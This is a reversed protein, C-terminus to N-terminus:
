PQKQVLALRGFEKAIFLLGLGICTTLIASVYERQSLSDITNMFVLGSFIVLLISAIEFITRSM